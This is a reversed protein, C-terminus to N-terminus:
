KEYYNNLNNYAIITEKLYELTDKKQDRLARKAKEFVCHASIHNVLLWKKCEELTFNNIIKVATFYVINNYKLGTYNTMISYNNTDLTKESTCYIVDNEDIFYTNTYDKFYTEFPEFNKNAENFAKKMTKWIFYVYERFELTELKRYKKDFQPTKM